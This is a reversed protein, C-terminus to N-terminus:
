ETGLNAADVLIKFGIANGSPSERLAEATISRYAVDQALAFPSLLLFVHLLTSVVVKRM